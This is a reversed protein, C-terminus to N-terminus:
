VYKIYRIQSLLGEINKHFFRLVWLIPDTRLDVIKLIRVWHNATKNVLLVASSQVLVVSGLSVLM